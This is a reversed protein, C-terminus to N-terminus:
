IIGFVMHLTFLELNDQGTCHSFVKLPHSFIFLILTPNGFHQALVMSVQETGPISCILACQGATHQNKESCSPEYDHHKLQKSNQNTSLVIRDMYQM